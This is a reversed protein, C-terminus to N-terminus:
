GCFTSLKSNKKPFGERLYVISYKFHKFFLVIQMKMISCNNMTQRFFDSSDQPNKLFAPCQNIIPQHIHDTGSIQFIQLYDPFRLFFLRLLFHFFIKWIGTTKIQLSKLSVTSKSLKKMSRAAKLYEPLDQFFNPYKYYLM